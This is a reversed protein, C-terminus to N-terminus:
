KPMKEHNLKAIRVYESIRHDKLLAVERGDIWATWDGQIRELLKTWFGIGPCWAGESDAVIPAAIHWHGSLRTPVRVVGDSNNVMRWSRGQYQSDFAEAADRDMLRPSGFTYLTAGHAPVTLSWMALTAEAGGRSHGTIFLPRGSWLGSMSVLQEHVSRYSDRFGGHVNGLGLLLRRSFTVNVLWDLLKDPETGRFAMVAVDPRSALFGQTDSTESSFHRVDKFGFIDCKENIAQDTSYALEAMLAMAYCNAATWGKERPDLPFDPEM